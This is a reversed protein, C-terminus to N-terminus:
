RCQRNTPLVTVLWARFAPEVERPAMGLVAATTALDAGKGPRRVVVDDTKAAFDITRRNRLAELLAPLKEREQVFLVLYRAHAYHVAQEFEDALHFAEYPMDLLQESSPGRGDRYGFEALIQGRWNPTGRLEDGAFKSVEYLSALGEDFWPPADPLNLKLMLHTNEHLASGLPGTTRIVMSLDTLVSYGLAQYPPTLGHLTAAVRGMTEENPVLYLTLVSDPRRMGFRREFFEMQRTLLEGADRRWSAPQSALSAVVFQGVTDAAFVAGGPVGKLLRLVNDRAQQAEALRFVRGGLGIKGPSSVSRFRGRGQTPEGPCSFYGMKGGAVSIEAYSPGAYYAVPAPATGADNRAETQACKQREGQVATRFDADLRPGYQQILADFFEVGKTRYDVRGSRCLSTAIMYQVRLLTEGRVSDQMVILPRVVQEYQKARWLATLSDLSQQAALPPPAFLAALLAGAPFARRPPTVSM